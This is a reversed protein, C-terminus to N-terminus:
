PLVQTGRPAFSEGLKRNGLPVVSLDFKFHRYFRMVNRLQEFIGRNLALDRKEVIATIYFVGRERCVYVAKLDKGIYSMRFAIYDEPKFSVTSLSARSTSSGTRMATQDGRSQVSIVPVKNDAVPSIGECIM